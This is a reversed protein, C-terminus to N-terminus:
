IGIPASTNKESKLVIQTEIKEVGPIELLIDLVFNRYDDMNRSVIKLCYDWSGTMNHCEIIQPIENIKHVFTDAMKRNHPHLTVFTLTLVTFGIKTQDIVATYRKIIGNNLLRKTRGLCASASLGVKKALDYNTILSNEQLLSLILRDKKDLNYDSM